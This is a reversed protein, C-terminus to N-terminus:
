IYYGDRFKKQTGVMYDRMKILGEMYGLYRYHMRNDEESWNDGNKDYVDFLLRRGQKYTNYKVGPRNIWEMIMDTRKGESAEQKKWWSKRIADLFGSVIMSIGISVMLIVLIEMM